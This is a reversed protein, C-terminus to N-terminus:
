GRFPRLVRVNDPLVAPLPQYPPAARNREEPTPTDKSKRAPCTAFHPMYVREYGAPEEDKRLARGIWTGAADRQVAINGDPDPDANCPMAKGSAMRVFLLQQPCARCQGNSM